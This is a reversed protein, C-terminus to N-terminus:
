RKKGGVYPESIKITIKGTHPIQQGVKDRLDIPKAQIDPGASIELDIQRRSAVVDAITRATRLAPVTILEPSNVVALIVDAATMNKIETDQLAAQCAAGMGYQLEIQVTNTAGAIERTIANM